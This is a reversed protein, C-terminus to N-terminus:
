FLPTAIFTLVTSYVGTPTTIQAVASWDLVLMEDDVVNSSSAITDTAGSGDFAYGVDNNYEADRALNSTLSGGTLDISSVTMGFRETGASVAVETTGASNICQDVQTAAFDCATGSTALHGDDFGDGESDDGNGNNAFYDVVVGSAANTRVMAYGNEGADTSAVTPTTFDIVGMDIDNGSIDTCDDGSGTVAENDGVCFDLVEQVRATITLQEATSIAIGGDHVYGTVPNAIATPTTATYVYVRAYFTNNPNGPSETANTPNVIGSVTATFYGGSSAGDLDDVVNCTFDLQRDGATVAALTIISCEDSTTVGDNNDDFTASDLSAADLDPVNDGSTFTCSTGPIPDSNCFEVRFSGIDETGTEPVVFSIEYTATTGEQSTSLDISRSTVQAAQVINPKNVFAVM